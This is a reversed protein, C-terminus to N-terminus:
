RVDGDDIPTNWRQPVKETMNDGLECCQGLACVFSAWHVALWPTELLHELGHPRQAQRGYWAISRSTSTIFGLRSHTRPEKFLIGPLQKSASPLLLDRPVIM